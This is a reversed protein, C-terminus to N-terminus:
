PAIQRIITRIVPAANINYLKYNAHHLYYQERQRFILRDTGKPIIELLEIRFAQEGFVNWAHQLPWTTHKNGLLRSRHECWRYYISATAYGIYAYGDVDNVIAYIGPQLAEDPLTRKQPTRM